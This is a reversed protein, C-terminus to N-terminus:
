SYYEVSQEINEHLVTNSAM